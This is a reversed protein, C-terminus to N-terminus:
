GCLGYATVSGPGPVVSIGGVHWLGSVLRSEAIFAGSGPPTNLNLNEQFGGALIARRPTKKGKKKKVQPCRPADVSVTTGSGSFSTSASVVSRATKSCYVYATLGSAGTTTNLGDVRWSTSSSPFSSYVLTGHFAMGTIFASGVFGGAVANGAPCTATQSGSTYPGSSSASPTLVTPGAVLETLRKAGKRCYAEATISGANSANSDAASARWGNYGTARSETVFNSGGTPFFPTSAYGGGVLVTKSPCTAAATAESGVAVPQTQSVTIVPGLKAKHKKKAVAAAPLCLAILAALAFVGTRRSGMGSVYKRLVGRDVPAAM